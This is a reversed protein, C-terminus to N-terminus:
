ARAAPRTECTSTGFPLYVPCFSFLGTLLPLAGLVGWWSRYYVGVAIVVVGLVIRFVRDGGGVNRTM